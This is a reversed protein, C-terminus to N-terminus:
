HVQAAQLVEVQCNRKVKVEARAAPVANIGMDMSKSHLM